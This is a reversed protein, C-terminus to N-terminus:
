LTKEDEQVDLTSEFRNRNINHTVGLVRLYQSSLGVFPNTVSILDGPNVAQGKIVVQGRYRLGSRKTTIKMAEALGKQKCAERLCDNYETDNAVNIRASQGLKARFQNALPLFTPIFPYNADIVFNKMVDQNTTERTTAPVRQSDYDIDGRVLTHVIKSMPQYRMKLSAVESTEDYWYHIIGNGYMDEGSNYIIFNIADFVAKDLRFARRGEEGLDVTLDIVSDPYVWHPSNNKDIWFIFARGFYVTGGEQVESLYNTNETQGLEGIWEFLPKWIKNMLVLPFGQYVTTGSGHAEAVDGPQLTDDIGRTCGTFQTANKGTYSIHESDIVLTGEDEFGVTSAVTITTAVADLAGNLTTTSDYSYDDPNASVRIRRRDEINGGESVFLANIAYQTGIDQDTGDFPTVLGATKEGFLRACNRIIGPATFKNAIGYSFNHIKNFLLYATDVAKLTIRTSNEMTQVQYEEIGFAGLLRDDDYWATGVEAANTLYTAWVRIEDEEGFKIKQTGTEVYGGVINHVSADTLTVNASAPGLSDSVQTIPNKLTLNCINNKIETSKNISASICDRILIEENKDLTRRWGIKWDFVM